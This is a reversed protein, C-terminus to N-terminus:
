TPNPPRGSFCEQDYQLNSPRQLDSPRVNGARGGGEGLWAFLCPSVPRSKRQHLDVTTSRRYPRGPNGKIFIWLRRGATLDTSIEKPHLDVTTPRCHPPGLNGKTFIWLRRGATLSVSIETPSSGCDGVQPSAPWSKRQHLDVTAPRCHPQSLNGKPFIWGVSWGPRGVVRGIM